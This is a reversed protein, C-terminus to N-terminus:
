DGYGQIPGRSLRERAQAKTVGQDWVLCYRGTVDVPAETELM